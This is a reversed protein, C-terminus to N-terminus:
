ASSERAARAPRLGDGPPRGPRLRPHRQCRRCAPRLAMDPQALGSADPRRIQLAGGPAEASIGLMAQLLLLPAAAAWAQPICAVPYAVVSARESRDFGCYLEPLRSDRARISVEFLANAVRKVAEDHGYRKLGAAIIANDHPWVSGNHHSRVLRRGVARGGAGGDERPRDSDGGGMVASVVPRGAESVRVGIADSWAITRRM